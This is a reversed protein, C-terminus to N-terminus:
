VNAMDPMAVVDKHDILKVYVARHLAAEAPSQPENWFELPIFTNVTCPKREIFSLLRRM